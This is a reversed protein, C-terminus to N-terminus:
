RGLHPKSRRVSEAKAELYASVQQQFLPRSVFLRPIQLEPHVPSGQVEYALNPEPPWAWNPGQFLYPEPRPGAIAEEDDLRKGTRVLGEWINRVWPQYLLLARVVNYGLHRTIPQQAMDCLIFPNRECTRYALSDRLFAPIAEVNGGPAMSNWLVKLGIRYNELVLEALIRLSGIISDVPKGPIGSILSVNELESLSESVYTRVNAVAREMLGEAKLVNCHFQVAVEGYRDNLHNHVLVILMNAPIDHRECIKAGLAWFQPNRTASTWFKFCGPFNRVWHDSAEVLQGMLIEKVAM